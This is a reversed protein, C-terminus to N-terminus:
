CLTFALLQTRHRSGDPDCKKHDDLIYNDGQTQSGIREGARHAEASAKSTQAENEPGHGTNLKDNIRGRLDNSLHNM